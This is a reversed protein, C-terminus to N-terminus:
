PKVGYPRSDIRVDPILITSLVEFAHGSLICTFEPLNAPQHYDHTFPDDGAWFFYFGKEEPTFIHRGNGPLNLEIVPLKGAGFRSGYICYGKRATIDTYAYTQEKKGDTFLICDEEFNLLRIRQLYKKVIFFGVLGAVLASTMFVDRPVPNKFFIFGPIAFLTFGAIGGGISPFIIGMSFPHRAIPIIRDHPSLDEKKM